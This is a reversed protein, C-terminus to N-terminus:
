LWPCKPPGWARLRYFKCYTFLVCYIYVFPGKRLKALPRMCGYDVVSLHYQLPVVINLPWHSVKMWFCGCFSVFRVSRFQRIKTDCNPQEPRCLSRWRGFQLHSFIAIHVNPWVATPCCQSEAVREETVSGIDPSSYLYTHLAAANGFYRVKDDFRWVILM